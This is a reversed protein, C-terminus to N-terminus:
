GAMTFPRELSPDQGLLRRRLSEQRGPPYEAAIIERVATRAVLVQDHAIKELATADALRGKAEELVRPKVSGARRQLRDLRKAGRRVRRGTRRLAKERDRLEHVASALRGRASDRIRWFAVHLLLWGVILGAM